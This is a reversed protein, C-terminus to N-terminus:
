TRRQRWWALGLAASTGLLFITTPEPVPELFLGGTTTIPGSATCVGKSCEIFVSQGIGFAVPLYAQQNGRIGFTSFLAPNVYEVIIGADGTSTGLQPNGGSTYSCTDFPPGFFTNCGGLGTGVTGVFLPSNAPLGFVSGTIFVTGGPKGYINSYGGFGSFTATPPLTVFSMAGGAIPFGSVSTIPHGFVSAPGGLPVSLNSSGVESGAFVLPRYSIPVAAAPANLFM